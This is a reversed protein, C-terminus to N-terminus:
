IVNPGDFETMWNASACLAFTFCVCLFGARIYRKEMSPFFLFCLLIRTPEQICGASCPLIWLGGRVEGRLECMPFFFFFM